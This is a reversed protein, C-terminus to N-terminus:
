TNNRKRMRVLDNKSLRKEYANYMAEIDGYCNRCLKIKEFQNDLISKRLFKMKDNNFLEFLSSERVNGILYRKDYDVCCPVVSGDWLITMNAWPAICFQRKKTTTDILGGWSLFKKVLIEDVPLNAFKQIFKNINGETHKMRIIELSVYPKKSKLEQKLRLFNIINQLVKEYNAGRRIKEYTEKDPGDFSFSIFDLGSLIIKKSMNEDLLTGNTAIRCQTAPKVEKIYRIMEIIKPHLLSEGGMFLHIFSNDPVEKVIKQFLPFEM